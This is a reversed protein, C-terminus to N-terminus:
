GSGLRQETRRSGGNFPDDHPSIESGPSALDTSQECWGSCQGGPAPQVNLDRISGYNGLVASYINVGPGTVDPKQVNQLNGCDAASASAQWSTM